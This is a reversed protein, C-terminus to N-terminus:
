KRRLILIRHHRALKQQDRSGIADKLTAEPAKHLLLKEPQWFRSLEERIMGVLLEDLRVRGSSLVIERLDLVARGSPIVVRALELLVQNMFDLWGNLSNFQTVCGDIAEPSIGSFWLKLWLPRSLKEAAPLPPASIVLNVSGASLMSLNRPDANGVRNYAEMRGLVSPLGDRLVSACKRLIRPAVARYEPYQGRKDNLLKQERPSLAVRPLTYSSLYGASPGHLLGLVLLEIFRSVRDPRNKLASRLNLIERFTDLDYFPQFAPKFADAPIPRSLNIQQLRLTVEAIDVPMLKARTILCALPSGDFSYSIRGMLSAQLGTTGGSCFPDLVVEGKRTY